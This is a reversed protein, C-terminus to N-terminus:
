SIVEGGFANLLNSLMGGPKNSEETSNTQSLVKEEEAKHEVAKIEIGEDVIPNIDINIKYVEKLVSKVIERISVDKLRDCHFKYKFSLRLSGNKIEGPNCNQLIFSLSHNYKKIKVLCEPWLSMVEELRMQAQSDSPTNTPAIVESKVTTKIEPSKEVSPTTKTNQWSSVPPNSRPLEKEQVVEKYSSIDLCAEAIAIELPLQLINSSNLASSTEMFRKLLSSIKKADINSTIVSLEKELSQGLDLGLSDSLGPSLKDLMMRRLVNILEANFNKVSIGRDVLNNILQIAKGADKKNILDILKLAEDSNNGPIVLEAQEKTIKKGGIAFIQGLLAEADRLHGGSHRAIAELVSDEIEVKEERAIHSLKKSVEPASIRKFDFRECRSIITGPVKHAETTCLIFIVYFPPEEMIKLLANFAQISLMHVEDIIFVKYKNGSPVLRSFSIVNERVNDVGTNSAADIEVVDLNRGETIAVCSECKGCPEFEGEKKNRCNTAKAVIRALTTKGVARPGCFLYSHSLKNAAIENQLALKIHNQGLVESFNKPRYDRYLTSM